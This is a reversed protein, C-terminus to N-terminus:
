LRDKLNHILYEYGGQAYGGLIENFLLTQEMTYNGKLLKLNGYIRIGALLKMIEEDPPHGLEKEFFMTFYSVQKQFLLEKVHERGSGESKELLIILEKRCRLEFEMTRRDNDPASDPDNLERQVLEESLAMMQSIVPDVIAHFLEQKSAFSFYFAGTTVGCAKCIRRLSAQQYGYQYFEERGAELLKNRTVAASPPLNSQNTNYKRMVCLMNAYVLEFTLSYSRTKGMRCYSYTIFSLIRNEECDSKSGICIFFFRLLHPISGASKSKM